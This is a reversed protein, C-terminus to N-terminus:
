CSLVESCAVEATPTLLGLCCCGADPPTTSGFCQINDAVVIRRIKVEADLVVLFISHGHWRGVDGDVMRAFALAVRLAACAGVAAIRYHHRTQM